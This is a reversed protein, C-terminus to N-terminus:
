FLHGLFLDRAILFQDFKHDLAFEKKTHPALIVFRIQQLLAIREFSVKKEGDPTLPKSCCPVLTFM